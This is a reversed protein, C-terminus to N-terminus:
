GVEAADDLDPIAGEGRRRVVSRYVIYPAVFRCVGELLAGASQMMRDALDFRRRAIHDLVQFYTYPTALLQALSSAVVIAGYMVAVRTTFSLLESKSLASGSEFTTHQFISVLLLIYAANSVLGLLTTIQGINWGDRAEPLVSSNGGLGFVMRFEVITVIALVLVAALSLPRFRKWLRLPEENRYLAFYFAPMIATIPVGFLVIAAGLSWKLVPYASAIRFFYQVSNWLPILLGLVTGIFTILAVKRINM